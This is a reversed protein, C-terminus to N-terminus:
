DDFTQLWEADYRGLWQRAERGSRQHWRNEPTDRLVFPSTARKVASRATRETWAFSWTPTPIDFAQFTWTRGVHTVRGETELRRLVDMVPATRKNVRAAVDRGSAPGDSKLADLVAVTLSDDAM